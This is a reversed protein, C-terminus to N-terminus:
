FRFVLGLTLVLGDVNIRSPVDGSPLEFEEGAYGVTTQTFRNKMDIDPDRFKTEFRIGILPHFYYDIGSLVHISTFVSTGLSESRVDAIGYEREGLYIGAGGGIYFQFRDSSIPILFYGTLEIPIISYGDVTPLFYTEDEIEYRTFFDGSKRHHEATIGLTFGYRPIGYRIDLGYGFIHDLENYRGRAIEDVGEPNPFLRSTTTYIGKVSVSRMLDQGTAQMAVLPFIFVFLIIIRSPM